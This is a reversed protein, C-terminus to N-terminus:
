RSSPNSNNGTTCNKSVKKVKSVQLSQQSSAGPTTGATSSGSQGAATGSSAGAAATGEVKVEQGTHKSLKKEDGQLRYTMGNNATLTYNGSSGSLCGELTTKNGSNETSSTQGYDGTNQAGTNGTQTGATQGPSQTNGPTQTDSTQAAVWAASILLLLCALWAKNM